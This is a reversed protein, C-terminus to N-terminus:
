FETIYEATVVAIVFHLYFAILMCLRNRLLLNKSLQSLSFSILIAELHLIDPGM